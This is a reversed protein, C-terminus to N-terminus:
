QQSRHELIQCKLIFICLFMCYIMCSTDRKCGRLWSSESTFYESFCWFGHKNKKVEWCIVHNPFGLWQIFFMREVLLCHRRWFCLEVTSKLRRHHQQYYSSVEGIDHSNESGHTKELGHWCQLPKEMPNEAKQVMSQTNRVTMKDQPVNVCWFMDKFLVDALLTTLYATTVYYNGTIRVLRALRSTIFLNTLTPWTLTQKM